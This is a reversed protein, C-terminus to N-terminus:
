VELRLFYFNCSSEEFKTMDIYACGCSLCPILLNEYGILAHRITLPQPLENVHIRPQENLANIQRTLMRVLEFIPSAFGVWVRVPQNLNPNRSRCEFLSPMSQGIVGFGGSNEM